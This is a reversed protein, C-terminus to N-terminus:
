ATLRAALTARRYATPSHGRSRSFARSFAFASSYGVSAAISELPEDTERLWRAALDMRWRTLYALPPDGVLSTFRRSMTARSVATRGALDDITWPHEPHRAHAVVGGFRASRSASDAVVPQEPEADLWGRLVQVFLVDILRDVIAGAGPRQAGLEASLLRLTDQVTVLGDGREGPLHLM